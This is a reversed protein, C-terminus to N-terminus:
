FIYIIIPLDGIKFKSPNNGMVLRWQKQTVEYKGLYFEELRVQHVPEENWNGDISGMLFCGQPINNLEIGTFDDCIIQATKNCTNQIAAMLNLNPVLGSNLILLILFLFYFHRVKLM